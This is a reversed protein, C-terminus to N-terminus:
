VAGDDAVKWFHVDCNSSLIFTQESHSDKM